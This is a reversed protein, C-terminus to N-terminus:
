LIITIPIAIYRPIQIKNEKLILERKKDLFANIWERSTWLTDFQLFTDKHDHIIRYNNIIIQLDEKEGKLLVNMTITRDKSNVGFDNIKGFNNILVNAFTKLAKAIIRDKKETFTSM